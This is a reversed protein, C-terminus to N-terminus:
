LSTPLSVEELPRITTVCAVLNEFPAGYGRVALEFPVAKPQKAVAQRVRTIIADIDFPRKRGKDPAAPPTPPATRGRFQRSNTGPYPASMRPPPHTRAM